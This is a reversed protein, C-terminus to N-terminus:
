ENLHKISDNHYCELIKFESFLNQFFSIHGFITYNQVKRDFFTRTLPEMLMCIFLRDTGYPLIRFSGVM